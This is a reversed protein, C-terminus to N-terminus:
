RDGPQCRASAFNDPWHKPDLIMEEPAFGFIARLNESVFTCSCDGNAKTTYIITPSAGLVQNVRSHVPSSKDGAKRINKDPPESVTSTAM